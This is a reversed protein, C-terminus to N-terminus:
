TSSRPATWASRPTEGAPSRCGYDGTAPPILFGDYRVAQQELFFNIPPVPVQTGAGTWGPFTSAFGLDYNVQRDVRTGAPPGTFSPHALVARDPRARDREGAHASLLPGTTMDATEIM